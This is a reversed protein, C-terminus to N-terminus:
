MTGSSLAPCRKATDDLLAARRIGRLWPTPNGYAAPAARVPSRASAPWPCPRRAATAARRPAAPRHPPAPGARGRRPRSPASRRATGPARDRRRGAHPGSLPTDLAQRHVPGLHHQRGIEAASPSLRASAVSRGTCPRCTSRTRAGSCSSATHCRARGSRSSDSPTISPRLTQLASRSASISRIAGTAASRRGREERRGARQQVHRDIEADLRHEVGLHLLPEGKRHLLDAFQCHQGLRQVLAGLRDGPRQRLRASRHCRALRRRQDVIGRDRRPQRRDIRPM